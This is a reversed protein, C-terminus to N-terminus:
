PELYSGYSSEWTLQGSTPQVLADAGRCYSEGTTGGGFTDSSQGAWQSYGYSGLGTAVGFFGAAAGTLGQGLGFSGYDLAVQGIGTACQRSWPDPASACASYAGVGDAALGVVAADAAVEDAIGGTGVSVIVVGAVIGTVAAGTGIAHVDNGLNSGRCAGNPDHGAICFLGSPDSANVPDDQAYGYRALTTAYGPDPTLFQGTSPDYYRGRLYEYGTEEDVYQGDYQIGTSTGTHSLVDGWADYDYTGTPKGEDNTLLRTSGQEDQLLYTPTEEAIQEVPAGTPGYIYYTNGAQLLMPLQEAHQWTYATTTGDVAKSTRLGDGDYVYKALRGIAVLRGAQDYSFHTEAGEITEGVREGESDYAFTRAPGVSETATSAASPSATEKTRAGVSPATPAAAISAVTNPSASSPLPSSNARSAGATPSSKIAIAALAWSGTLPSADSIGVPGSVTASERQVWASGGSSDIHNTLEGGTPRAVARNSDRGVAWILAGDRASVRVSPAGAHGEAASAGAVQAGPGLVVVAFLSPVHPALGRASASGDTLVRTARATAIVVSGGRTRDSTLTRWSLGSGGIAAHSSSSAAPASLFAVLLSGAKVVPLRAISIGHANAAHVSSEGTVSPTSAREGLVAGGGVSASSVVGSGGTVTTATPTSVAGYPLHPPEYIPERHEENLETPLEHGGHEEHRETPPESEERPPEPAEVIPVRPADSGTLEDGGNFHQTSGDVYGTANSSPDYELGNEGERALRGAEDYDYTTAPTVAGSADAATLRGVDDREYAFTALTREGGSDNIQMLDDDADYTRSASVGGPLAEREENGDADYAYDVKHGLWDEVQTLHGAADYARRVTKGNPYTIASLNGDPDYEYGTTSGSGDTESTLRGLADYRYLSTSAGTRQSTRRGDADYVDEVYPTVGDSYSISRLRGEENYQYYTTRGTPLQVEAPKGDAQYTTTTTAGDITVSDRYGLDDYQFTTTRGGPDEQAVVQGEDDYNTRSAPEDGKKVSIREGDLNYAYTTSRGSADLVSTQQGNASYGYRTVGGMGDTVSVLEDAADYESTSTHTVADGGAVNGNPSTTTHLRGDADYSMATEHGLADTVSTLDGFSDYAYHTTHGDADTSSLLEGAQSGSGYSWSSTITPQNEGLPTSKALLQGGSDYEFTTAIGLPDTESVVEGLSNYTYRTVNGAVGRSLVKGEADLTRYEGTGSPDDVTTIGGSIPDYSYLWTAPEDGGWNAVRSTMFGFEYAYRTVIGAPSTVLTTGPEAEYAYKTTRGMPDTQAEVQGTPSYTNETTGGRADTRTLLQHSSDYAYSTAHGLPNTVKALNGESDYEYTTTDGNSDVVSRVHGGSLSYTLMRGGAKTVVIKTADPYTVTTIVGDPEAISQLQGAQSFRYALHNGPERTTFLYSGDENRALTANVRPPAVYEGEKAEYRVEAGSEQTVTVGVGSTELKPMYASSWGYGFPGDLAHRGSSYTRTAKLANGGVNITADTDTESYEGTATNVPDGNWGETCVCSAEAPNRGGYTEWSTLAGGVPATLHILSEDYHEDWSYLFRAEYAGPGSTLHACEVTVFVYSEPEMNAPIPIPWSTATSGALSYREEYVFKSPVNYYFSAEYLAVHVATWPSGPVTPCPHPGAPAGSTTTVLYGPGAVHTSLSVPEAPGTVEIQFGGDKWTAPASWEQGPGLIIAGPEPSEFPYCAFSLQHVGVSPQEYLEIGNFSANAYGTLGAGYIIQVDEYDLFVEVDGPKGNPLTCPPLRYPVEIGNPGVTPGDPEVHPTSALADLPKAFSPTPSLSSSEAARPVYHARVHRGGLDVLRDELLKPPPTIAGSSLRRPQAAPAAQASAALAALSAIAFLACCLARVFRKNPARGCSHGPPRRHAGVGTM